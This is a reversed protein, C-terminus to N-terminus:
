HENMMMKYHEPHGMQVFIKKFVEFYKEIIADNQEVFLDDPISHSGDNIWCILSRCIEQEQHNDFHKILDDDGYKGLIKFYNEIIRRMTNQITIGSLDKRNKLENWLLEYSNHIPNKMEYAQIASVNKNRRLIWYFTDGNESTRGDIFSVEKHFYVNHTLLILQKINGDDKKIGKIIEKILSSIVFLVNSDLSSIPDDVILVREETITEQSTSGKSLQLFYLFTIFTIEGESLTSEAITGDERHIQYQNKETTSPVIEFNFFGYSKLTRNIEDVSPQVSTVNKNAEKIKKNQTIYKAQLEQHQKQLADIGRQLGDAKKNFTTIKPKNEEVLYKWIAKILDSRETTYNTVITNHEKILTNADTILQQINELQEKISILDISRSPEKTKNNLLEKNSIFQSSVTKLYASFTEINLKTETNSKETLEIQQLINSLNLSLRNYEESLTKVISTDTTFSEDFYSELQTRFEKTITQEQCFPCTKDEQLYARGENVWDNLNLKQILKAIEVDAKGIIKKQWIKSNEIEILREFNIITIAPITTPITGFITKAKDKLEEYTKLAAKNSTFEDLIKSKFSDKKMVGVFAEKFNNEYEKYVETWIIEKFENDLLLKDNSLKILSEKKKIGKDKIEALENQMKKIAEIEEKTAQGLTFVGDISGKGFNKDRFDKNYVLTKIAIGNKWLILCNSYQTNIPNDAVKTITTKGCGNAGYIFNIKKLNTVQIGTEDFTAINKVSLSDIM